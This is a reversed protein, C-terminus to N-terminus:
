LFNVFVKMKKRVMPFTIINIAFKYRMESTGRAEELCILGFGGESDGQSVEYDSCRRNVPRYGFNLIHYNNNIKSNQTTILRKLFM